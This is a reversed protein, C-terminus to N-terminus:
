RAGLVTTTTSYKNNFMFLRSRNQTTLKIVFLLIQSPVTRSKFYLFQTYHLLHIPKRPTISNQWVVFLQDTLLSPDSKVVSVDLCSTSWSTKPDSFHPEKFKSDADDRPKSWVDGTRGCFYHLRRDGTLSGEEV